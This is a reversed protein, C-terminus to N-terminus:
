GMDVVAMISWVVAIMKWITVLIGLRGKNMRSGLIDRQNGWNGL